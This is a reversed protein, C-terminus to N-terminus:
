KFNDAIKQIKAKAREEKRIDSMWRDEDLYERIEDEVVAALVAPDLADLEWSVAGYKVIYDAARSDSEKAPNPPPAYEDIQDMTLAMRSFEIEHEMNSLQDLRSFVDRDMDLGSPDHDGFYLIIVGQGSMGYIEIDKAIGYLHSASSYGKTATLPVDLRRCVPELVGSRADKEVMVLIRYDQREWKDIRYSEAASRLISAPSLWHSNEVIRRNRDEIMDWDILGALRGRRIINGLRKYESVKNPIIDAAVLRYYLQRLSLILGQAEYDDVIGRATELTEKTAETPSWDEFIEIAM